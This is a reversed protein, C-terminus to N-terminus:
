VLLEIISRKTYLRVPVAVTADYIDLVVVGGILGCCRDVVWVGLVRGVEVVLV